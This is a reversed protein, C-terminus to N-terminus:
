FDFIIIKPLIKNGGNKLPPLVEEVLKLDGEKPFGDFHRQYIYVKATVVMRVQVSPLM